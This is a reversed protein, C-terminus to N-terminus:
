PKASAAFFTGKVAGPREAFGGSPLLTSKLCPLDFDVQGLGAKEHFAIVSLVAMAPDVLSLQKCCNRGGYGLSSFNITKSEPPSQTCVIHFLIGVPRCELSSSDIPIPRLGMLLPSLALPWMRVVAQVSGVVWLIWFAAGVGYLAILAHGPKSPNPKPEGWYEIKRGIWYWHVIILLFFAVVQPHIWLRGVNFGPVGMRYLGYAPASYVFAPFNLAASIPSGFWHWPAPSDDSARVSMQYQAWVVVSAPFVIGSVHLRALGIRLTSNSSNCRIPLRLAFEFFGGRTPLNKKTGDGNRNTFHCSPIRSYLRRRFVGSSSRVEWNAPCAIIDHQGTSDDAKRTDV